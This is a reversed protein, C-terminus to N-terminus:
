KCKKQPNNTFTIFFFQTNGKSEITQSKDISFLGSYTFLALEKPSKLKRLGCRQSISVRILNM